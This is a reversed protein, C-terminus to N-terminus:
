AFLLRSLSTLEGGGEGGLHHSCSKGGLGVVSIGRAMEECKMLNELNSHCILLIGHVLTIAPVSLTLISM